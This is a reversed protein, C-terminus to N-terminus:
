KQQESLHETGTFTPSRAPWIGVDDNVLSLIVMVGRRKGKRRDESGVVEEVSGRRGRDGGGERGREEEGGTGRTLWALFCALM